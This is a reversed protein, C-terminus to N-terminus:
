QLVSFAPPEDAPGVTYEAFDDSELLVGSSTSTLVASSQGMPDCSSSWSKALPSGSTEHSTFGHSRATEQGRRCNDCHEPILLSPHAAQSFRSMSAVIAIM